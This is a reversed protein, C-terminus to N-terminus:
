IIKLIKFKLFISCKLIIVKVFFQLKPWFGLIVSQGFISRLVDSVSRVILIKSMKTFSKSRQIQGKKTKVKSLIQFKQLSKSQKSPKLSLFVKCIQLFFINLFNAKLTSLNPTEIHSIKVPGTNLSKPNPQFYNQFKNSIYQIKKHLYTPLLVLKSLLEQFLQTTRFLSMSALKKQGLTTPQCM